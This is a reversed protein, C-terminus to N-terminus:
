LIVVTLFFEDLRGRLDEEEASSMRESDREKELCKRKTIVTERLVSQVSIKETMGHWMIGTDKKGWKRLNTALLIVRDELEQSEM